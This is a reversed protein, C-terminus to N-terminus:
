AYPVAVSNRHQQEPPVPRAQICAGAIIQPPIQCKLTHLHLLPNVNLPPAQDVKTPTLGNAYVANINLLPSRPVCFLVTLLVAVHLHFCFSFLLMKISTACYYGYPQWQSIAEHDCEEEMSLCEILLLSQCSM